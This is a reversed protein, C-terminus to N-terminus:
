ANEEVADGQNLDELLAKLTAISGEHAQLQARMQDIQSLGTQIARVLGERSQELESLRQEIKERM